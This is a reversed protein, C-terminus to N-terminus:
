IEGVSGAVSDSEGIRDKVYDRVLYKDTLIRKKEINDYLKLWQLKENYTRLNSWDLIKGTRAFYWIEVFKRETVNKFESFYLPVIEPEIVYKFGKESLLDLVEKRYRNSVGIIIETDEANEVYSDVDSVPINILSKPNDNVSSVLIGDVRANQLIMQAIVHRAREGAGFVVRKKETESTMKEDWRNNKGM